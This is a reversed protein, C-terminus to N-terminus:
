AGLRAIEAEIRKLKDAEVEGSFQAGHLAVPALLLAPRETWIADVPNHDVPVLEAGAKACAASLREAAATTHLWPDFGLRDGAMLHKGLWTEPPPDVLPEVRWAKADVQKGAQLTYRGDVFVAAVATLVVALGASGTFGTLWALREESPPVYENQEQDARPVVFGSLNRKALEERFASLRASLAIGTEPEEFTQFLAEFM